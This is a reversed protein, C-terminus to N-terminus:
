VYKRTHYMYIMYVVRSLGLLADVSEGARQCSLPMDFLPVKPCFYQIIALEHGECLQRRGIQFAGNGNLAEDPRLRRMYHVLTLICGTSSASCIRRLHKLIPTCTNNIYGDLGARGKGRNLAM